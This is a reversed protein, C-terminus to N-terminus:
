WRRNLADEKGNDGNAPLIFNPFLPNRFKSGVCEWEMM